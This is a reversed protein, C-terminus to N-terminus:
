RILIWIVGGYYVTVLSFFMMVLLCEAVKNFRTAPIAERDFYFFQCVLRGTWWTGMFALMALALGDGQVLQDALFMSVISFFLHSGLIYLAYTYFMQQMFPIMCATRESWKLCRLIAVSGVCLALQAVGATQLGIKLLTDMNM